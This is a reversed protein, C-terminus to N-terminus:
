WAWRSVGRCRRCHIDLGKILYASKRRFRSAACVWWLIICRGRRACIACFLVSLGCSQRASQAPWRRWIRLRSFYCLTFLRTTSYKMGASHSQPIWHPAQPAAHVSSHMYLASSCSQVDNQASSIETRHPYQYAGMGGYVHRTTRVSSRLCRWVKERPSATRAIAIFSMEVIAWAIDFFCRLARPIKQPQVLLKVHIPREQHRIFCM